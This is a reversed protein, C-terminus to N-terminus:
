GAATVRRLRVMAFLFFLPACVSAAVLLPLMADFAAFPVVVFLADDFDFGRPYRFAVRPHNGRAHLRFVVLFAGVVSFGAVIGMVIALGGLLQSLGIGAGIFTVANVIMDSSLDFRHGAASTKGSLRALEGDARDLIASFLFLAAGVLNAAATGQAFAAAAALGTVLRLATVHNPAVASGIMPLIFWRAVQHAYTQPPPYKPVEAESM